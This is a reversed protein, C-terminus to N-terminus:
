GVTSMRRLSVDTESTLDNIKEAIIRAHLQRRMSPIGVRLVPTKNTLDGLSVWLWLLAM